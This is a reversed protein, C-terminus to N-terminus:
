CVVWGARPSTQAGENAAGFWGAAKRWWPLRNKRQAAESVSQNAITPNILAVQIDLNNSITWARVQELTVDITDIGEFPNERLTDLEAETVDERTEPLEGAVKSNELSIADISRLRETAPREGYEDLSTAFPNRACGSLALLALACAASSAAPAFCNNM